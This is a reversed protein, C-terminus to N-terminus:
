TTAERLPRRAIEAAEDEGLGLHRLVMTATREPLDEVDLLVPAADRAPLAQGHTMETAVMAASLITGGVSIITMLPDSATFRGSAFGRQMDGLFHAGMRQTFAQASYSIYLFFRGWIPDRTVQVITNRVATSVIEAPDDTSGASQNLADAFANFVEDVLQDYIDDKSQFYNYFSGFGVDAAETIQNIAVGEKGQTAMLTMAARMLRERTERKRRERRSEKPPQNETRTVKKEAM